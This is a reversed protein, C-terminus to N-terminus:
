FGIFFRIWGLLQRARAAGSHYRKLCDYGAQAIALSEEPHSIYHVLKREFDEVDDFFVAETGDRFNNPIRIPPRESFLMCGQAPLEWYRVTDFGFGFCNMGIRTARIRELYEDQTWQANFRCQLFQEARAACAARLGSKRHGAWFFPYPRHEPFAPAIRDDAYAFPLPAAQPGYDVCALMERKFYGALAPIGLVACVAARTDLLEDIQDILFIPTDGAVAAIRRATAPDIGNECDGYLICDFHGARLTDCIEELSHERGPRNFSCPYHALREPAAGHLPPKYPFEVVNDDGLVRCLGDYLVDLGYHLRPHIVYLVRRPGQGPRWEPPNESEGCPTDCTGAPIRLKTQPSLRVASRLLRAAMADDGLAHWFEAQCQYAPVFDPAHATVTYFLEQAKTMCELRNLSADSKMWALLSFLMEMAISAQLEETRQYAPPIDALIGYSWEPRGADFCSRAHLVPNYDTRVMALISENPAAADTWQQYAGMGCAAAARLAPAAADELGQRADVSILVHGHPALVRSLAPFIEEVDTGNEPILPLYALDLACEQPFLAELEAPSKIVADCISAALQAKATDPTVVYVAVGPRKKLLGAIELRAGGILLNRQAWAPIRRLLALANAAASCAREPTEQQM